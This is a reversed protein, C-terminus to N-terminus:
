PTEEKEASLVKAEGTLEHFIDELSQQQTHMELTLWNHKNIFAALELRIDQEDQSNITLDYLEGEQNLQLDLDPHEARFDSFDVEEGKLVLRLSIGKNLYRPLNGILDDVIIKGKNIIVVRDCLAQVEQMIHSSLIVMKEKGLKRILDRIELIQNPDLGSTPEDLILIRPDHLIALALGTRQRYGKSLTGIKQPLVDTLGCNQVVYDRRETFKDKPMKRLEAFYELAEDVNMEEYLPNHEPLYGIQRSTKLPDAFISEGDLSISGSSPQLYGVLMRLTTTKGAGNPGLFGLIERDQLCFSIGDVARLQGFHRSLNEIKIM